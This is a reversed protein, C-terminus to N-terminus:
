CQTKKGQYCIDITTELKSFAGSFHKIQSVMDCVHLVATGKINLTSLKVTNKIMLNTDNVTDVTYCQLSSERYYSDDTFHNTM